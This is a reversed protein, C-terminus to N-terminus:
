EGIDPPIRTIFIPNLSNALICLTFINTLPSIWICSFLYIDVSQEMYMLNVCSGPSQDMSMFTFLHALSKPCNCLLVYILWHVTRNIFLNFCSGISQDMYMFTFVHILPNTRDVPEKIYMNGPFQLKILTYIKKFFEHSLRCRSPKLHM